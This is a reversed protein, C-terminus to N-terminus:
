SVALTRKRTGRGGGGCGGNERCLLFPRVKSLSGKIRSKLTFVQDKFNILERRIQRRKKAYKIRTNKNMSIKKKKKKEQKLKNNIHYTYIRAYSM